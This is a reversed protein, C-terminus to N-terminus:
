SKIYQEAYSYLKTGIGYKYRSEDEVILPSIKYTNQKKGVLHIMGIPKDDSLAIFMRQEFSFFGLNDQGNDLHAKFIRKAHEEHNGDYYPDLAKLMMSVVCNFDSKIAEWIEINM